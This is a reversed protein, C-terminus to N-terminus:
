PILFVHFADMRKYHGKLLEELAADVVSPQPAWLHLENKPKRTPMWIKHKDLFGGRIGHGEEFWRKSTLPELKQRGMWSHVWTLLPLHHKVATHALDIFSLTDQGAMVGEMMSGRSCGDTGQAIMRQGSIHIVHITMGYTMELPQLDLVLAHLHPSKSNGQYFCGEVTSNDTFVFLKCDKLRGAM